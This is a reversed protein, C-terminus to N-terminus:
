TKRREMEDFFDKIYYPIVKLKTFLVIDNSIDTHFKEKWLHATQFFWVLGRDSEEVVRLVM